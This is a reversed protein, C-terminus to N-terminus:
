RLVQVTESQEDISDVWDLPDFKLRPKLSLQDAKTEVPQVASQSSFFFFILFYRLKM